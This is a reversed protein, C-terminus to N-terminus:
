ADHGFVLNAVVRTDALTMTVAKKPLGAVRLTWRVAEQDTDFYVHMSSAMKVGGKTGMIYGSAWDCFGITGAAGDVGLMCPVINVPRGFITGFPSVAYNQVLVPNGATDELTILNQYVMGSMYWEAAAPNIQAMYMEALEVATPASADALTVARSGADGVSATLLSDTGYLIEQDLKLGFAKGVDEETSALIGHADDELIENTFPIITSLKNVAASANKFARKAVAIQAGEAYVILNVGNYDAPTGSSENLQKVELANFNKGVPRQQVKPMIYSVDIANKWIGSVIDNDVLAGGDAAVLEGQGAIAKIEADGVGTKAFKALKVAQAFKQAKSMLKEGVKIDMQKEETEIEKTDLKVGKVEVEPVEPVETVVEVETVKAGEVGEVGEVLAIAKTVVYEEASKAEVLEAAFEDNVEVISDKLYAKEEVLIDKLLKLKM